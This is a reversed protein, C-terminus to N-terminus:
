EPPDLPRRPFQIPRAERLIRDWLPELGLDVIWKQIYNLDLNPAQLEYVRLVDQLQKESGGSQQSWNLKMLITDEPASVIGICEGLDMAQRRSFRSQDFPAATLVWFDVKEGTAVQLLNFMRRQAIAETVATASLYFEDTSFAAILGPADLSTLRVVIDIDHTSRPEGQLSSALSGTLMYDIGLRELTEVIRTLLESQSM